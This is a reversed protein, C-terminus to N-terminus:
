NVATKMLVLVRYGPRDMNARCYVFENSIFENLFQDESERRNFAEFYEANSVASWLPERDRPHNLVEIHLPSCLDMELLPCEEAWLEEDSDPYESEIILVDETGPKLGILKFPKGGIM